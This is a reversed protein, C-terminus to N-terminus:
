VWTMKDCRDKRLSLVIGAVAFLIMGSIQWVFAIIAVALMVGMAVQMNWKKQLCFICWLLITIYIQVANFWFVPNNEGSNGFLLELLLARILLRKELISRIIFYVGGWFCLPVYLRVMRKKLGILNLSTYINATLFFSILMFIPVAMKKLLFFDNFQNDFGYFHICVVWFSCIVRAYDIGVYQDKKNKM